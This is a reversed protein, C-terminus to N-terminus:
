IEKKEVPAESAPALAARAKEFDKFSMSPKDRQIASGSFAFPKYNAFPTLAERLRDREARLEQIEEYRKRCENEYSAIVFEDRQKRDSEIAERIREIYVAYKENVKADIPIGLCQHAIEQASRRPESMSNAREEAEQVQATDLTQSERIIEAISQVIDVRIAEDLEEFGHKIGSHDTLDAIIGRAAAHAWDTAPLTTVGDLAENSNWWSDPADFPYQAGHKLQGLASM